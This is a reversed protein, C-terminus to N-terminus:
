SREVKIYPGIQSVHQQALDEEELQRHYGGILDPAEQSIQRRTLSERMVDAQERLEAVTHWTDWRTRQLEPNGGICNFAGAIYGERPGMDAMFKSVENNRVVFMTQYRRWGGMDPSMENREILLLAPENPDLGYAVPWEKHNLQHPQNDELPTLEPHEDKMVYTQDKDRGM